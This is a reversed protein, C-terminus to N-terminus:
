RPKTLMQCTALRWIRALRGTDRDEDRIWGDVAAKSALCHVDWNTNTIGVLVFNELSM